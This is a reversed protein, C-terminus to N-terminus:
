KLPRIPTVKRSYHRDTTKIDSHGLLEKGRELSGADSATKARLDHETFRETIRREDLLRDMFRQWISDWGSAKGTHESYYCEGAANCFLYPGIDIPRAAKAQEVAERLEDSWEFSQLKLTKRTSVTLLNRKLDDIKLRLLDGRRLGLLIKLRIYAQIMAVSGKKRMPKLAMVQAIEEDTVYRTRPKEGGMRIENKFPHRDIFGWEVAKTYAHRLVAIERRARVKAKRKDVYQYINTPRIDELGCPGFIVRLRAISHMYDTRTAAAKKPVEQLAYRDLLENVTTADEAVKLRASWVGYAEHLKGGLRFLRKGDWRAEHGKPVLYYYAGHKLCWRKPLGRNEKNRKQPM